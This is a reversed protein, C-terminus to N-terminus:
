SYSAEVVRAEIIAREWSYGSNAVVVVNVVDVLTWSIRVRTPQLTGHSQERTRSSRSGASTKRYTPEEARLSTCRAGRPCGPRVLLVVVVGTDDLCCGRSVRTV